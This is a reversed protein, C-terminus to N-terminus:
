YSIHIRCLIFHQTPNIRTVLCSIKHSCLLSFECVSLSAPASLTLLCTVQSSAFTGVIHVTAEKVDPGIQGKPLVEIYTTTEKQINRIQLLSFYFILIIMELFNNSRCSKCLFRAIFSLSKEIVLNFKGHGFVASVLDKRAYKQAIAVLINRTKLCCSINPGFFLSGHSKFSRPCEPRLFHM